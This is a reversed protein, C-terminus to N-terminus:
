QELGLVKGRKPQIPLGHHIGWHVSPTRFGAFKATQKRVEAFQKFAAPVGSQECRIVAVFVFSRGRAFSPLPNVRTSTIITTERIPSSAAMATGLKRRDRLAACLLVQM